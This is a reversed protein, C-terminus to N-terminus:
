FEDALKKVIAVDNCNGEDWGGVLTAVTLSKLTDTNNSALLTSGNQPAVLDDSIKEENQKAIAQELRMAANPENFLVSFIWLAADRIEAVTEIEPIGLSSGHYQENRQEHFWCLTENDIYIPLDRHQLELKWFDLLSYFNNQWKEVDSKKYELGGRQYPKLSLYVNISIEISNDFSILALRRDYDRGLKYHTEAHYILEFPRRKWPKLTELDSM